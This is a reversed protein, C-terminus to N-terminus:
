RRQLVRQVLEAIQGLSVPRKLITTWQHNEILPQNLEAAGGLLIIPMELRRLMDVMEPTLRQDRLDVIVADPRSEQGNGFADLADKLQVFGRADFGREILEARLCARPWQESDIIWIVPEKKRSHRIVYRTAM